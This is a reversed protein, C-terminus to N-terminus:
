NAEPLLIALSGINCRAMRERYDAPDFFCSTDFIWAYEPDAERREHALNLRDCWGRNLPWRTGHSCYSVDIFYRGGSGGPKARRAHWLASHAIVASGPPLNDFVKEGPLTGSGLLHLANREIVTRHSGPVVLLDGITGDLGSLYYFVHVMPHVRNTQPLQEYDQHWPVGACGPDHRDAHLHHMSFTTGFLHRVRDLMEPWVALARMEPYDLANPRQKTTRWVRVYEDLEGRLVACRGAPLAGPLALYGEREFDGRAGGASVETSVTAYADSEAQAPLPATHALM